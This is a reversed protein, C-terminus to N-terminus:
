PLARQIYGVAGGVPPVPPRIQKEAAGGCDRCRFRADCVSLASRGTQILFPLNAESWRKCAPCYLALTHSQQHFDHITKLQIAAV